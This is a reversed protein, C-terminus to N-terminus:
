KVPDPPGYPFKNPMEEIAKQLAEPDYDDWYLPGDKIDRLHGGRLLTDMSDKTDNFWEAIALRGGVNEVLFQIQCFSDCWLRIYTYNQNPEKLVCDYELLVAQDFEHWPYLGQFRLGMRLQQEMYDILGPDEIYRSFDMETENGTEYATVLAKQFEIIAEACLAIAAEFNDTAVYNDYKSLYEQQSSVPEEEQSSTESVASSSEPQSEEPEPSPPSCGASFVALSLLLALSLAKWRIM